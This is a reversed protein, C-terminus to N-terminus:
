KAKLEALMELLHKTLIVSADKQVGNTGLWTEYGGLEHQHPPPLYGNAGNALEIMFTRPFPSKAKIELGIEVLVEFPMTVIAQDGIRLAQILVSVKDPGNAASITRFAYSVANRPLDKAEEESLAATKKAQELEEATPRRRILEVERQLMAIPPNEHREAQRVARWSADAVKAAVLRIQEFPERPPRTGPFDINNIDGSTGNSLMAVFGEPPKSGGVRYPMIRSYEGFYDASVTDPPMGGVYHLAYNALFALPRGKRTRIDLVAVEPDTPGAPKVIDARNPNMKVKDFGGFPNPPMTGEKLYWRRNFVEDPVADSGWAITAPQLAAVADTISKVIGDQAKQRYAVAAKSGSTGSISPATHTHTAGILMEGTSWGTAEAAKAKVADLTERNIMLNDVIAIVVRGDGNQLAMARSHLPDHLAGSNRPNFSGRLSLPWQDPSIDVAAAGAQLGPAEQAVSIGSTGLIIWGLLIFGGSKRVVTLNMFRCLFTSTSMAPSARGPQEEVADLGFRLASGNGTQL